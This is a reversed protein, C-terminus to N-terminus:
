YAEPGGPQYGEPMKIGGERDESEGESGEKEGETDEAPGDPLRVTIPEIEPSPLTELNRRPHVSILNDVDDDPPDAQEPVEVVGRMSNRGEPTQHTDTSDQRVDQEQVQDTEHWDSM